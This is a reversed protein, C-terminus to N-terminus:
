EIQQREWKKYSKGILTNISLLISMIIFMIISFGDGIEGFAIPSVILQFLQYIFGAMIFAWYLNNIREVSEPTLTEWFTTKLSIKGKQQNNQTAM